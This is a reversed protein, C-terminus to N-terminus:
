GGEQSQRKNGTRQGELAFLDGKHQSSPRPYGSGIIIRINEEYILRLMFQITNLKNKVV